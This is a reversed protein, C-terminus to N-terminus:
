KSPEQSIQHVRSLFAAEDAAHEGYVLLVRASDDFALVIILIRNRPLPNKSGGHASVGQMLFQKKLQSLRSSSLREKVM